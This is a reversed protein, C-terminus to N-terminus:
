LLQFIEPIERKTWAFLHKKDKKYYEIYSEVPCEKKFEDPMALAFTTLDENQINRPLKMLVKRLKFDSKHIKGYRYTYEDCMSCFHDYLWNYNQISERAWINCPHNIHTATYLVDELINDELVYKKKKRNNEVVITEKGDLVRHATSLMQGSELIMKVVHSNCLMKASIIPNKNLVFINM